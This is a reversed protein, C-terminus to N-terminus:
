KPPCIGVYPLAINQSMMFDAAYYNPIEYGYSLFLEASNFECYDRSARNLFLRHGVRFLGSPLKAAPLKKIGKEVRYDKVEVSLKSAGRSEIGIYLGSLKADAWNKPPHHWAYTKIFSSVPIDVTYWPGGSLTKYNYFDKLELYKGEAYKGTEADVFCHSYHKFGDNPCASQARGQSFDGKKYLEFELFHSQNTRGNQEPWILNAGILFRHASVSEPYSGLESGILRVTVSVYFDEAISANGVSLDNIGAYFFGNRVDRGTVNLQAKKLTNVALALRHYDTGNEPLYKYDIVNGIFSQHYDGMYIGSDGVFNLDFVKNGSKDLSWHTNNASEHTVSLLLPENQDECVSLPGSLINQQKAKDFGTVRRDCPRNFSSYRTISSSNSTFSKVESVESGGNGCSIMGLAVVFSLFFLGTFKM